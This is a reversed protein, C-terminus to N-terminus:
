MWASAIAAPRKTPTARRTRRRPDPQQWGYVAADRKEHKLQAKAAEAKEKMAEADTTVWFESAGMRRAAPEKPCSSLVVVDAVCLAGLKTAMMGLGGFGAVGVRKRGDLCGYRVLPDFTTM